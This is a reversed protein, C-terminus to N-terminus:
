DPLIMREMVAYEANLSLVLSLFSSKIMALKKANANKITIVKDKRM